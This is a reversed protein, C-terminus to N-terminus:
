AKITYIHNVSYKTYTKRKTNYAHKNNIKYKNYTKYQKLTKHKINFVHIWTYKIPTNSIPQTYMNQPKNIYTIYM